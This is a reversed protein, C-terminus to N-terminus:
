HTHALPEPLDKVDDNLLEVLRNSVKTLVESQDATLKGSVAAAILGQGFNEVSNATRHHGNHKDMKLIQDDTLGPTMFQRGTFISLRSLAFAGVFLAATGAIFKLPGVVNIRVAEKSVNKNM